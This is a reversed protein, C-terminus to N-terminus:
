IKSYIPKTFQTTFYFYIHLYNISIVSYLVVTVCVICAKKGLNSTSYSFGSGHLLFFCWWKLFLTVLGRPLALVQAKPISVAVCDLFCFCANAQRILGSKHFSYAM